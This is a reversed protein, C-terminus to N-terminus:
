FGRRVIETAVDDVFYYKKKNNGSCIPPIDSVLTAAKEHSIGLIKRVQHKTIFPHGRNAETLRDAVEKTTM